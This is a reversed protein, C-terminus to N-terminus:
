RSYVARLRALSSLLEAATGACVFLMAIPRDPQGLQALRQKVVKSGVIWDCWHDMSEFDIVSKREFNSRGVRGPDEDGPPTSIGSQHEIQHDGATEESNSSWGHEDDSIM